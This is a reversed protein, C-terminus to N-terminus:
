GTAAGAPLRPTREAADMLTGESTPFVLADDEWAQGLDRLRSEQRERHVRLSEVVLGPLALTRRSKKTKTEANARVSRWVEVYPPGQAPDLRVHEWRLARLEETRAGTLLSMVIYAHLPDGATLTLVGQAQELTLSKSPRGARGHHM